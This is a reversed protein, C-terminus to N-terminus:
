SVCWGADVSVVDGTIARAGDGLLFVAMGAVDEAAMMAGLPQKGEMFAMIEGNDKARRSMPTEVLAPAIVNVRIKHPAYYAAMAKSMSVIAGKSAAYAHSAFFNREPAFALVSGMNLIAGRIGGVEAQGMMRNLVARCVLFM